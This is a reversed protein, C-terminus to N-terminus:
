MRGHASAKETELRSLVKAGLENLFAIRDVISVLGRQETVRAVWPDTCRLLSLAEGKRDGLAVIADDRLDEGLMLRIDEGGLWTAKEFRKIGHTDFEAWRKGPPPSEPEPHRMALGNVFNRVISEAHQTPIAGENNLVTAYRMGESLVNSYAQELWPQEKALAWRVHDPRAIGLFRRDAGERFVVCRVRKIRQLMVAFIFLRSTIWEDGSGLDIVVYDRFGPEHLLHLLTSKGDNNVALFPDGSKFSLVDAGLPAAQMAPLKLVLGAVGIEGGHRGIQELAGRIPKYFGLVLVVVTLPWAIKEAVAAIGGGQGSETRHTIEIKSPLPSPVSTTQASATAFTMALLVLCASISGM